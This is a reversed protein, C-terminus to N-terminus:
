SENHRSKFVCAMIALTAKHCTEKIRQGRCRRKKIEGWGSQTKKRTPHAWDGLIPAEWGYSARKSVWNLTSYSVFFHLFYSFSFYSPQNLPCLLIFYMIIFLYIFSHIFLHIFSLIFSHFFSHIFHIISHIFWHIFSHIFSHILSDIFSHILSDILVKQKPQLGNKKTSSRRLHKRTTKRWCTLDETLRIGYISRKPILKAPLVAPKNQDLAAFKSTTRALMKWFHRIFLM